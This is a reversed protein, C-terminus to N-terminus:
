AEAVPQRIITRTREPRTRPGSLYIEHHCGVARLGAAAIAARLRDVSPQEADYPGVHLTQAVRGEAWRLTEPRPMAPAASAIHRDVAAAIEEDTAADPLTILLRWRMPGLQAVAAEDDAPLPGPEGTWYLGHLHGIPADLGRRRMAFHVGYAAGFLAGIAARFAEGGPQEGGEIALYRRPPITLFGVSRASARCEAAEDSARVFELPPHSIVTM